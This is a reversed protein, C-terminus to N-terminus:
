FSTLGSLNFVFTQLGFQNDIPLTTIHLGADDTFSFPMPSGSGHNFLDALDFSILTFNGGASKAITVPSACNDYLVAQPQQAVSRITRCEVPQLAPGCRPVPKLGLSVAPVAVELLLPGRDRGLWGSGHCSVHVEDKGTSAQQPLCSERIPHPLVALWFTQKGWKKGVELFFPGPTEALAKIENM